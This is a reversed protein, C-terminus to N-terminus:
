LMSPVMALFAASAVAFMSVAVSSASSKTGMTPDYYFSEGSAIHPFAYEIVYSSGQTGTRIDVTEETTGYPGIKKGTTPMDLFNGGVTLKKGNMFESTDDDEEVTEGDKFKLKIGYCVFNDTSDFSWGSLTTSFKLTEERITVTETCLTNNVDCAGTTANVDGCTYDNVDYCVGITSSNCNQCPIAEEVDYETVSVHASLTFKKDGDTATFTTHYGTTTSSVEEAEFDSWDGDGALNWSKGNGNVMDYEDNASDYSCEQLKDQQIMIFNEAEQSGFM